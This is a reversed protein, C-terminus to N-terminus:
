WQKVYGMIQTWKKNEKEKETEIKKCNSTQSHKIYADFRLNTCFNTKKTEKKSRSYEHKNGSLSLILRQIFQTYTTVQNEPM